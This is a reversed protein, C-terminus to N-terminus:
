FKDQSKRHQSKGERESCGKVVGWWYGLDRIGRRQFQEASQKKEKEQGWEQMSNPEPNETKAICINLTLKWNLLYLVKTGKWITWFCAPQRSERNVPFSIKIELNARLEKCGAWHQRHEKEWLSSLFLLSTIGLASSVSGQQLCIFVSRGNLIGQWKKHLLVLCRPINVSLWKMSLIM